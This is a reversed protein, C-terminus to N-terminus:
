AKTPLTLHTYSVAYSKLGAQISLVNAATGNFVLYSDICGFLDKCKKKLELSEKDMGYSHATGVNTQIMAEMILPHVGSHNDSGLSIM